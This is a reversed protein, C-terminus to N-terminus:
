RAINSNYFESDCKLSCFIFIFEKFNQKFTILSYAQQSYPQLPLNWSRYCINLTVKIYTTIYFYEHMLVSKYYKNSRHWYSILIGTTGNPSKSEEINTESTSNLPPVITVEPAKRNLPLARSNIFLINSYLWFDYRRKKNSYAKHLVPKKEWVKFTTSGICNFLSTKKLAIIYLKVVHTVNFVQIYM